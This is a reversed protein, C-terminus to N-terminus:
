LGSDQTAAVAPIEPLERYGLRPSGSTMALGPWRPRSVNCVWALRRAGESGPPWRGAPFGSLWRPRGFRYGGCEVVVPWLEGLGRCDQEGYIAM